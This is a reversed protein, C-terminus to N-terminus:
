YYISNRYANDGTKKRKKARSPRDGAVAPWLMIDDLKGDGQVSGCRTAEEDIYRGVFAAQAVELCAGDSGNVSTCECQRMDRTVRNEGNLRDGGGSKIPVMTLNHLPVMTGQQQVRSRRRRMGGTAGTRNILLRYVALEIALRVITGM